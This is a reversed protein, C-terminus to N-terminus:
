DQRVWYDSGVLLQVREIREPVVEPGTQIVLEYTGGVPRNAFESRKVANIYETSWGDKLPDLWLEAALAKGGEIQGLPIPQYRWIQDFDTVWAPGLHTLNFPLFGEAYCGSPDEALECDKVGTGVVNVALLGWRTNYRREYPPNSIPRDKRGWPDLTFTTKLASV